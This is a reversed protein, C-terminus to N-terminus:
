ISRGLGEDTCTGGRRRIRQNFSDRGSRRPQLRELPRVGCLHWTARRGPPLPRVVSGVGSGEATVEWPLARPRKVRAILEPPVAEVEGRDAPLSPKFVFGHCQRKGLHDLHQRRAGGATIAYSVSASGGSRSVAERPGQDVAGDGRIRNARHLGRRICSAAFRNTAISGRGDLEARASKSRRGYGHDPGRWAPLNWGTRMTRDSGPAPEVLYSRGGVEVHAPGNDRQVVYAELAHLAAVITKTANDALPIEVLYRGDDSEVLKAGFEKLAEQFGEASERSVAHIDLSEM